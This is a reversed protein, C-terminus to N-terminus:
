KRVSGVAEMGEFWTSYITEARWPIYAKLKHDAVFEFKNQAAPCITVPDTSAPTLMDLHKVIDTIHLNLM